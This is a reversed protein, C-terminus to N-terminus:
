LEGQDFYDLDIRKIQIDREVRVGVGYQILLQVLKQGDILVIRKSVSEVFGRAAPTFSCTAVFIGKTALKGDLAGAFSQVTERGISADRKYKKAQIYVVDLGLPDENVIGDIGQDGSKGIRQVVNERSGGYGMKVILDVVLAEFFSPSKEVIRDILEDELREQIEALAEGIAEDPTPARAHAIAEAEAVKSNTKPSHFAIFEPFQRLVKTDIKDPYDQLLKLGRDTIRFHARRTRELAGAKALYTCAWNVRNAFM